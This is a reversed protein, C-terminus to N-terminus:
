RGYFGTFARAVRKAEEIARREIAEDAEDPVTNIRVDIRLRAGADGPENWTVQCDAPEGDPHAVIKCIIGMPPSRVERCAYLFRTRPRFGDSFIVVGSPSAGGCAPM